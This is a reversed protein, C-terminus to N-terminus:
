WDGGDNPIRVTDISYSPDIGGDRTRFHDGDDDARMVHLMGSASFLWLSKPWRKALAKLARIAREEAATPEIETM